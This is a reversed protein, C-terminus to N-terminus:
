RNRQQTIHDDIAKDFEKLMAQIHPDDLRTPDRPANWMKADQWAEKADGWLRWLRFFDRLMRLQRM